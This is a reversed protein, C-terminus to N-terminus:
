GQLRSLWAAAESRFTFPKCFIPNRECRPVGDADWTILPTRNSWHKAGNFNDIKGRIFLPLMALLWVAVHALNWRPDLVGLRWRSGLSDLLPVLLNAITVPLVKNLREDGAGLAYGGATVMAVGFGVILGFLLQGIPTRPITAPDTLFLTMMLLMGPQLFAPLNSYFAHAWDVGLYVGLTALVIRFRVQPILALLIVLEPLNPALTFLVFPGGHSFTNPFAITLALAVSLGFAM